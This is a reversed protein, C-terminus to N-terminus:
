PNDGALRRERMIRIQELLNPQEDETQANATAHIAAMVERHSKVLQALAGGPEQGADIRQAVVLALRGNPTDAQGLKALEASTAETVTGTPNGDPTAMPEGTVLTMTVAPGRRRPPSCHECMKRRGGRGHQLPLPAGCLACVRTSM